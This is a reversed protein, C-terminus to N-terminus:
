RVVTVPLSRLGRLVPSAIRTPEGRPSIRQTRQFLTELAIRGEMRALPAGICFHIGTGFGLHENPQREPLFRDPDAWHRPDRNASGIMVLVNSGAPITHDHLTVDATTVRILGQGPNDYRLTEEIVLGAMSPDAELRRQVDPHEFLALMSNAILNTTTENGAVLLLICFTVLEVWNLADDDDGSVLRSVLDDGPQRRRQRVIRAFFSSIAVSSRAMRAISGGSVLGGVLNDSWRKFDDQRRPPIAMMEAIVATPLPSAVTAILDAQATGATELEDVLRETIERVRPEWDAIVRPTFARNVKRRLVTHAPPDSTLLVRLWPIRAALAGVGRPVKMAPNFPNVRMGKALGGLDSSFRVPDRLVAQVDAHRTLM